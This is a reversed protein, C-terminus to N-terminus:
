SAVLADIEAQLKPLDCLCSVLEPVSCGFEDALINYEYDTRGELSRAMKATLVLAKQLRILLEKDM